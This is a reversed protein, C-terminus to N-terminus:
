RCPGWGGIVALLDSVNVRNDGGAPAVDPGCHDCTGWAGIVELLDQVDVSADGNVDAHSTCYSAQGSDVHVRLSSEDVAEFNMGKVGSITALANDNWAPNPVGSIFWNSGNDALIMGYKKLAILIVRVEQPYPTIDFNAKLRFRQGM